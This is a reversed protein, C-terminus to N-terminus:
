KLIKEILGNSVGATWGGDVIFSQGTIFQSEAAALFHFVGILDEVTAARGMPSFTAIFAGEEEWNTDTMPTRTYTPLVANVSIQRHGLEVASTQTLSVVAAKTAAYPEGQPMKTVAAQSATNIISGGDNMCSPGYKLGYLVGFFNINVLKQWIATDGEEIIGPLDGVGANNLLIDIKGVAKVAKALAIKVQEEKSVDLPIYTADIEKAVGNGDHIDALVVKAGAAIYRKAVALGIGSCGGTIFAIKDKISFFNM